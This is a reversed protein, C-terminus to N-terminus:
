GLRKQAAPLPLGHEVAPMAMAGPLYPLLPAGQWSSGRWCPDRGTVGEVASIGFPRVLSHFFGLAVLESCFGVSNESLQHYSHM